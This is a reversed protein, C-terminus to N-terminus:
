KKDSQGAGDRSVDPTTVDVQTDEEPWEEGDGDLGELGHPIRASAPVDDLPSPLGKAKALEEVMRRAPGSPKGGKRAWRWVSQYDTGIARALAKPGGYAEALDKWAGEFESPRGRKVMDTDAM